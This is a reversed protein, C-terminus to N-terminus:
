HSGRTPAEAAAAAAAAPSTLMAHSCLM